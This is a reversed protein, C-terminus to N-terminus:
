LHKTGNKAGSVDELIKEGNSKDVMASTMKKGKRIRRSADLYRLSRAPTLREDRTIIMNHSDEDRTGRIASLRKSLEREVGFGIM